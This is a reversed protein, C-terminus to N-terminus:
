CINFSWRVDGSFWLFTKAESGASWLPWYLNQDMKSSNWTTEPLKIEIKYIAELSQLKKMFNYSIKLNLLWSTMSGNGATESVYISHKQSYRINKKQSIGITELPGKRETESSKHSCTKWTKPPHRPHTCVNVHRLTRM